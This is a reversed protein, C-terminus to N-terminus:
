EEGSKLMNIRLNWSDSQVIGNNYASLVWKVFYPIFEALQKQVTHKNGKVCLFM